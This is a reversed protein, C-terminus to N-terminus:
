VLQNVFITFLMACLFFYTKSKFNIKQADAIERMRMKKNVKALGIKKELCSQGTQHCTLHALYIYDGVM